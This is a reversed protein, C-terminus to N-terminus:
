RDSEQRSVVGMVSMGPMILDPVGISPIALAQFYGSDSWDQKEIAQSSAWGISAAFPKAGQADAIM